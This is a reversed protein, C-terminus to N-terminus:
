KCGSSWPITSNQSQWCWVLSVWYSISYLFCCNLGLWIWTKKKKWSHNRSLIWNLILFLWSAFSFMLRWVYWSLLANKARKSKSSLFNRFFLSWIHHINDLKVLTQAFPFQNRGVSQFKELIQVNSCIESYQRGLFRYNSIELKDCHRYCELNISMPASAFRFYKRMNKADSYFLHQEKVSQAIRSISGSSSDEDEFNDEQGQPSKHVLPHLEGFDGSFDSESMHPLALQFHCSIVVSLM